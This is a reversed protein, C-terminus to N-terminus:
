SSAFLSFIWLNWLSQKHIASLFFFLSSFNPFLIVEKKEEMKFSDNDSNVKEDIQNINKQELCFRRLFIAWFIVNPSEQAIFGMNQTQKRREEEFVKATDIFFKLLYFLYFSLHIRDIRDIIDM